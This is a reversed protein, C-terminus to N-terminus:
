KNICMTQNFSSSTAVEKPKMERKSATKTTNNTKQQKQQMKAIIIIINHQIEITTAIIPGRAMLFIPECRIIQFCYQKWQVLEIIHKNWVRNNNTHKIKKQEERLKIISLYIKDWCRYGSLVCCFVRLVSFFNLSFWESIIAINLAVLCTWHEVNRTNERMRITKKKNTQNTKNKAKYKIEEENSFPLEGYLWEFQSVKSENTTQWHETETYKGHDTTITERSNHVDKKRQMNVQVCDCSTIFHHSTFFFFHVSCPSTNRWIM